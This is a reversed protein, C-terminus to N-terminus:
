IDFRNDSGGLFVTRIGNMRSVPKQRFIRIKGPCTFIVVQNKDAKETESLQDPADKEVAFYLM